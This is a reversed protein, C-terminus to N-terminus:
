NNKFHRLTLPMETELLAVLESQPMGNLHAMAMTLLAQAHEMKEIQAWIVEPNKIQRGRRQIEDLELRLWGSLLILQMSRQAHVSRAAARVQAPSLINSGPDKGQTSGPQMQGPPTNPNDNNTNM